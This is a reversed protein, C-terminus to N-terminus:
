LICFWCLMMLNIYKDIRTAKKVVQVVGEILKGVLFFIARSFKEFIKNYSMRMQPAVVVYGLKTLKKALDTTALDSKGVYCRILFRDFSGGHTIIAVARFSESDMGKRPTPMYIDFFLDVLQYSIGERSDFISGGDKDFIGINTSYQVDKIVTVEEESFVEELYIPFYFNRNIFLGNFNNGM